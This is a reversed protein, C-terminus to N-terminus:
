RALLPVSIKSKLYKFLVILTMARLDIKHGTLFFCIALSWMTVGIIPSTHLGAFYGTILTWGVIYIPLGIIHLTRNLPNRHTSSIAKRLSLTM